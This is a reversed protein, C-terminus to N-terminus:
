LRCLVRLDREALRGSAVFRDNLFRALPTGTMESIHLYLPCGIGASRGLAISRDPLDQLDADLVPWEQPAVYWVVGASPWDAVEAEWPDLDSPVTRPLLKVVEETGALRANPTVSYRSTLVQFLRMKRESALNDFAPALYANWPPYSESADPVFSVRVHDNLSVTYIGRFFRSENESQELEESSVAVRFDVEPRLKSM